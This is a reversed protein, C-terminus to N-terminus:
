DTSVSWIAYGNVPAQLMAKGDSAVVNSETSNGTFDILNGESWHTQVERSVENDSINLYLVLGEKNDDGSRSAIFEDANVFLVSWDGAALEQRLAIMQRIKQKKEDGSNEYHSYFITPYGPACLIYAYAHLEFANPFDLDNDQRNETDHNGVFTVAKEPQNNLLSAATLRQLNRTNFADRMNFFNPFDFANLGTAEVWPQVVGALNGDFNEGVAFGGMTDVWNKVIDTGYGKVFDFRWGDIGLTNMYFNAVSQESKWMWAQVYESNLDMDPFGAFRGADEGREGNPLFDHKNRNFLGSPVNFLTYTEEGQFPNFELAGGSNHNIVMDAIVAINNNHAKEIMRELEERNGFRTEITGHQEFDGFDFYDAPDYGMSFRGSQGKSIPPIWIADIGDDAWDDLKSTLIDWWIGGETVDWYFAQMMVGSGPIIATSRSSSTGTPYDSAPHTAVEESSDTPEKSDTKSCCLVLSICLLLLSSSFIKKM